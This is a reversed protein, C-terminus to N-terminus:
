LVQCLRDCIDAVKSCVVAEDDNGTSNDAGECGIAGEKLRVRRVRQLARAAENNDGTGNDTGECILHATGTAGEKSRARDAGSSADVAITRPVVARTRVRLEEAGSQPEHFADAIEGVARANRQQRPRLRQKEGTWRAHRAYEVGM